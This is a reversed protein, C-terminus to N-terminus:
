LLIRQLCDKRRVAVLYLKFTYKCNLSGTSKQYDRQQHAFITLQYYLIQSSYPLM